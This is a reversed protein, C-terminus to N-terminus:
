AHCYRRISLYTLCAKVTLSSRAPIRIIWGTELRVRRLYIGSASAITLLDADRYDATPLEFGQFRAALQCATVPTYVAPIHAFLPSYTGNLLTAMPNPVPRAPDIPRTSESTPPSVPLNVRREAEVRNLRAYLSNNAILSEHTGNEVIQGHELVLIRDCQRATSLRHTIVMCTCGRARLNQMIRQELEADLASTAEDM